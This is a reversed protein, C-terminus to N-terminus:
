RRAGSRAVEERHERADKEAQEHTARGQGTWGCDRCIAYRVSRRERRALSVYTDHERQESM